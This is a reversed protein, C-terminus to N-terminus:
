AKKNSDLDRWRSILLRNFITQLSSLPDNLELSITYHDRYGNTRVFVGQWCHYDQNWRLSPKYFEEIKKCFKNM